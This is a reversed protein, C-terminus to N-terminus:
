MGRGAQLTGLVSTHWDSSRSVRPSLSLNVFVNKRKETKPKRGTELLQLLGGFGDCYGILVCFCLYMGLRLEWCTYNGIRVLTLSLSLCLKGTKPNRSGAVLGLCSVCGSFGPIWDDCM